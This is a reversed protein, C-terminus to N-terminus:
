TFFFFVFFVFFLFCRLSRVLCGEIAQGWKHDKISIYYGLPGIPPAEAQWREKAIAKAFSVHEHGFIAMRDTQAGELKQLERRLDDRQRDLAQRM